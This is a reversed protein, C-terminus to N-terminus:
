TRELRLAIGDLLYDLGREFREDETVSATLRRFTTAPDEGGFLAEVHPFEGGALLTRIWEGMAEIWQGTQDREEHERRAVGFVYDDVLSIIELKELQGIPLEALAALSQEFHRLGNPGFRPESEQLAFSWPHRRMTERSRKAIATLASRWGAELAEEPVLLESMMLDAMLTLLDSKTPVYHYLTMTGAGLEAAVRRMSVAEFGEADALRLATEAIQDRTFRPRRSGPAPTTWVPGESGSSM